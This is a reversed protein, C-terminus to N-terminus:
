VESRVPLTARGALSKPPADLRLDGHEDIRAHPNGLITAMFMVSPFSDIEPDDFVSSQHTRTFDMSRELRRFLQDPLPHTKRLDPYALFMLAMWELRDSSPNEPDILREDFWLEVHPNSELLLQDIKVAHEPLLMKIGLLHTLDDKALFTRKAYERETAVWHIEAYEHGKGSSLVPKLVGAAFLLTHSRKAWTVGSFNEEFLKLKKSLESHHEPFLLSAVALNMARRHPKKPDEKTMSEFDGPKLVTQPDFQLPPELEPQAVAEAARLQPPRRLETKQGALKM